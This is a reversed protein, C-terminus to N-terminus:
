GAPLKQGKRLLRKQPVWVSRAPRLFPGFLQEDEAGGSGFHVVGKEITMRKGGDVCCGGEYPAKPAAGTRCLSHVAGTRRV